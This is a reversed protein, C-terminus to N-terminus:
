KIFKLDIDQCGTKKGAKNTKTAKDLLINTRKEVLNSNWYDNRSVFSVFKTV